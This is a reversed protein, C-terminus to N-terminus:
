TVRNEHFGIVVLGIWPHQFIDLEAALQGGVAPRCGQFVCLLEFMGNGWRQGIIEVFVQNIKGAQTAPCHSVRQM